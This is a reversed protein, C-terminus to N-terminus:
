KLSKLNKQMMTILEKENGAAKAERIGATLSAKAQDRQGDKLYAMALNNHTYALEQHRGSLEESAVLEGGRTIAEKWRKQEVLEQVLQQYLKAKMAKEVESSVSAGLVDLGREFARIANEEGDLVVSYIIGMRMQADASRLTDPPSIKLFGAAAHEFNQLAKKYREERQASFGANYYSTAIHAQYSAADDLKTLSDIADECSKLAGTAQLSQNVQCLNAKQTALSPASKQSAPLKEMTEIVSLYRTRAQDLEGNQQALSALSIDARVELVKIGLKSFGKSAAECHRTVGETAPSVLIECLALHARAELQPNHIGEAGELAKQYYGIAEDRRGAVEADKGLLGYVDIMAPRNNMKVFAEKGLKLHARARDYDGMLQLVRALRIRNRAMAPVSGAAAFQAQAQELMEYARQPDGTEAFMDATKALASGTALPTKAGKLSEIDKKFQEDKGGGKGQLRDLVAINM